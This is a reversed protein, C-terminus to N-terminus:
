LTDPLAAAGALSIHAEHPSALTRDDSVVVDIEQSDSPTDHRHKFADVARGAYVAASAVGTVVGITGFTYGTATEVARWTPHAERDTHDAGALFGFALGDIWTNAKGTWHSTADGDWHEIMGNLAANVIHKGAVVGLFVKRAPKESEILNRSAYATAAIGVAIRYKDAFADFLEGFRGGNGWKKAGSGDLDDAVHGSIQLGVGLKNDLLGGATTAVVGAGTIVHPILHRHEEPVMAEIGRVIQRRVPAPTVKELIGM